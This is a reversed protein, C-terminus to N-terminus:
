GGGGGSTLSVVVNVTTAVIVSGFVYSILCHRLVASRIRTTQLNTDSVQFTMGLTFAVYAFDSYRPRESQNFEIGGVPEAYYLLAYNLTFVTQVAVWSVAVSFLALGALLAKTQPSSGNAALLVAGVAALSAVAALLVVVDSAQRSPNERTAHAASEQADMRGVTLWVSVAFLLAAADWGALPALEWSGAVGCALAVVVGVVAM